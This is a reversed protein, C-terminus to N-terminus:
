TAEVTFHGKYALCVIGGDSLEFNECFDYKQHTMSMMMKNALGIQITQSNGHFCRRCACFSPYFVDGRIADLGKM